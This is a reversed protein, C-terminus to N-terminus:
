EFSVELLENNMLLIISNSNTLLYGPNETEIVIMSEISVKKYRNLWQHFDNM